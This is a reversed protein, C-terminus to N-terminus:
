RDNKDESETKDGVYIDPVYPEPLPMWAVVNSSATEDDPCWVQSIYDCVMIYCLRSDYENVITTLYSGEKEPLKESTPIWRGVKLAEIAMKVAKDDLPLDYTLYGVLDAIAEERLM